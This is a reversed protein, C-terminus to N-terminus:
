PSRASAADPLLPESLPRSVHIELRTAHPPPSNTAHPAGSFALPLYLSPSLHPATSLHRLPARHHCYIPCCSPCFLASPCRIHPCSLHPPRPRSDSRSARRSCRVVGCLGAETSLRSLIHCPVACSAARCPSAPHRVNVPRQVRRENVSVRRLRSPPGPCRAGSYTSRAM